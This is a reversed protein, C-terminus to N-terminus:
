LTAGKKRDKNAGLAARDLGVGRIAAAEGAQHAELWVEFRRAYIGTGISFLLLVGLGGLADPLAAHVLALRSAIAEPVFLGPAGRRQQHHATPRRVQFAVRAPHNQWAYRAFWGALLLCGLIHLVRIPHHSREPHVAM